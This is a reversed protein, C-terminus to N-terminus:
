AASITQTQGRILRVERAGLREKLDPEHSVIAILAGRKSEERVIDELLAASKRDLGTWPEDLLLLTPAHILARGLAIRQTQGRSLTRMPRNAFAGLGLRVALDDYRSPPVGQLEAALEVNKKGSLERYCHSTHSVWGLQARVLDPTLRKGHDDLYDV